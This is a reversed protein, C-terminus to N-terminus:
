RCPDAVWPESFRYAQSGDKAQKGEPKGEEVIFDCYIHKPQPLNQVVYAKSAADLTKLTVWDTHTEIDYHMMICTDCKTCRPRTAVPSSRCEDVHEAGDITVRPVAVFNAGSGLQEDM